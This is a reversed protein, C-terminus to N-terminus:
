NILYNIIVPLSEPPKQRLYIMEHDSGFSGLSRFVALVREGSYCDVRSCKYNSRWGNFFASENQFNMDGVVVSDGALDIMAQRGSPHYEPQWPLHCNIVRQSKVTVESCTLGSLGAPYVGGCEGSKIFVGTSISNWVAGPAACYTYDPLANILAQEADSGRRLEQPAVIDPRRQKIAQAASAYDPQFGMNWMIITLPIDIM